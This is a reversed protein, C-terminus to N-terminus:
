CGDSFILPIVPGPPPYIQAMFYYWTHYSPGQIMTVSYRESRNRVSEALKKKSALLTYLVISWVFKIDLWLTYQTSHYSVDDLDHSLSYILSQIYRRWSAIYLIIAQLFRPWQAVRKSQSTYSEASWVFKVAFWSKYPPIISCTTVSPTYWSRYWPLINCLKLRDAIFVISVQFDLCRCWIYTM